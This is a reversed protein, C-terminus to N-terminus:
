PTAPAGPTTAAPPYFQHGHQPGCIGEPDYACQLREIFIKIRSQNGTVADFAELHQWATLAVPQPIKPDPAMVIQGHGKHLESRVIDQLQKVQDSPLKNPNYHVVVGAHEMFHILEEEPLVQTYIGRKPPTPYHWGSTPPNSNYPPHPQGPNIHTNGQSPYVTGPLPANASQFPFLRWRGASGSCGGGRLGM